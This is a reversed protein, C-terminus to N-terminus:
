CPCPISRPKSAEIGDPDHHSSRGSCCSRRRNHLRTQTGHFRQTRTSTWRGHRCSRLPHPHRLARLKSTATRHRIPGIASCCRRPKQWTQDARHATTPLALSLHASTPRSFSPSDVPRGLCRAEPRSPLWSQHGDSTWPSQARSGVRTRRQPSGPLSQSASQALAAVPPGLSPGRSSPTESGTLSADPLSRSCAGGRIRERGQGPM